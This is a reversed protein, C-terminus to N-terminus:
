RSARFGEMNVYRRAMFRRYIWPLWLPHTLTGALGLIGLILHGVEIGLWWVLLRELSIPLIIILLSFTQQQWGGNKVTVSGTLPQTEKNIIAMMFCLPIVCGLTFFFYGVYMTWHVKGIVVAPILLVLPVILTAANFYYKARLLQLISQRRSMLGDMYNGEHTMIAVLSMLALVAFNYFTLFSQMLPDDYVDTFDTLLSFVAMLGLGVWMQKKIRPNRSHLRWELKLYEGLIGWRNFFSLSSAHRLTTDQVRGVELRSVRLQVPLNVAYFLAIVALIGLLPLPAFQFLGRTFDILTMVVSQQVELGMAGTIACIVVAHLALPALFWWVRRICLTRVLLYSYASALILLWWCFLFGVFSLWGMSPVVANYGFPILFFGWYLNGWSALKRLLYIHMLRRQPVPLLYFTKANNAPTQQLIFRMWFDIILLIPFYGGLVLYAPIGQMADGLSKGMNWGMLVLIGAYYLYMLLAFVKMFRNREFLPHRKDQHHELWRIIKYLKTM